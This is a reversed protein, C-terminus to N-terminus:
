ILVGASKSIVPRAIFGLGVGVLALGFTSVTLKIAMDTIGSLQVGFLDLPNPVNLGTSTASPSAGSAAGQAAQSLYKLYSGHNYTSWAGFGQQKYVDYAAKANTLPDFLQSNSSIGFQSRRQPGMGGIMNIQWLGYSLDGTSPNDNLASPNGGSEAFAIATMIQAQSASFGAKVADAYIEGSSLAM